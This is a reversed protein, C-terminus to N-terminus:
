TRSWAGEKKTADFVTEPEGFRNLKNIIIHDATAYYRRAVTLAQEPTEMYENIHHWAGAEHVLVAYRSLKGREVRGASQEYAEHIWTDPSM